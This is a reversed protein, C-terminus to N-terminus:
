LAATFFQKLTSISWTTRSKLLCFPYEPVIQIFSLVTAELGLAAAASHGRLWTGRNVWARPSGGGIPLLVSGARSLWPQKGPEPSQLWGRSGWGAHGARSGSPVKGAGLVSEQGQGWHHLASQGKQYQNSQNIEKGSLQKMANSFAQHFKHSKYLIHSLNVQKCM